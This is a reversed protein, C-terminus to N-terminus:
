FNNLFRIETKKKNKKKSHSLSYIHQTISIYKIIVTENKKKKPEKENEGKM